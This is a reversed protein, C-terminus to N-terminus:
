NSNAWWIISKLNLHPAHFVCLVLGQLKNQVLSPANIVNGYEPLDAWNHKSNFLHKDPDLSCNTWFIMSLCIPFNCVLSTSSLYSFTEHVSSTMFIFNVGRHVGLLHINHLNSSLFIKAIECDWYNESYQEQHQFNFKQFPKQLAVCAFYQFISILIVGNDYFQCICTFSFNNTKISLYLIRLSELDQYFM